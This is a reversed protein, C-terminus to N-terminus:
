YSTPTVTRGHLVGGFWTYEPVLYEGDIAASILNNYRGSQTIIVLQLCVKVAHHSNQQPSVFQHVIVYDLSVFHDGM